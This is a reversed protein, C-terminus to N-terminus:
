TNERASADPVDTATDASVYVVEYGLKPAVEDLLKKAIVMNTEAPCYLTGLKRIHPFDRRLIAFTEDYAPLLSVGTVNPAHSTNSTGAGAGIASGVYTFVVPVSQARRLAAQLTPTSFTVLMDAGGTVAADVLASVTAMDGQANLTKIEFDRGEELGSERLGEKVGDASEEVDVVDNFEVFYLKWKHTAPKAGTSAPQRHQLDSLLLVASAAVVVSIGFAIKRLASIM